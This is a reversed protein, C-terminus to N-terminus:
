CFLPNQQFTTVSCHRNFVLNTAANAISLLLYHFNFSPNATIPETYPTLADLMPLFIAKHLADYEDSATQLAVFYTKATTKDEALAFDVSITITPTAFDTKYLTWNLAPSQYTGISQPATTLGVRPLFSTMVQDASVVMSQQLLVTVDSPSQDREYLGNGFDKWSDPVVGILGLTKDTYPKLTISDQALTPMVLLGTILIVISRRILTKMADEGGFGVDAVNAPESQQYGSRLSPVEIRAWHDIVSTFL